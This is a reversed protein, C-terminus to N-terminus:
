FNRRLTVTAGADHAHSLPIHASASVRWEDVMVALRRQPHLPSLTDDDTLQLRDILSASPAVSGLDNRAPAARTRPAFPQRYGVDLPASAAQFRVAETVPVAPAAYYDPPGFTEGARRDPSYQVDNHFVYQRPERIPPVVEVPASPGLSAVVIDLSAAGAADEAWAPVTLLCLLAGAATWRAERPAISLM